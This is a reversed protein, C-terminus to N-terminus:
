GGDFTYGFQKIDKAYMEAVLQRTKADYYERYPLRNKSRAAHPFHGPLGLKTCIGQWHAILTEFRCVKDVIVVGDGDAVFDFQPAYLVERGGLKGGAIHERMWKVWDPFSLDLKAQNDPFSSKKGRKPMTYWSVVRDWPNRVFAFSFLERYLVPNSQYHALATQHNFGYAAGRENKNLNKFVHRISSGATKPIHIFVCKYKPSFMETCM